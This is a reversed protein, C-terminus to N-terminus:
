AAAGRTGISAMSLACTRALDPGRMCGCCAAVAADDAIQRLRLARPPALFLAWARLSSGHQLAVLAAIFLVM